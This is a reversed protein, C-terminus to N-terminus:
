GGADRGVERRTGINKNTTIRDMAQKLQRMPYRKCEDSPRIFVKREVDFTPDVSYTDNEQFYSIEVGSFVRGRVVGGADINVETEIWRRWLPEDQGQLRLSSGARASPYM